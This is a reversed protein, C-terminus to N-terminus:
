ACFSRVPLADSRNVVPQSETYAQAHVSDHSVHWPVGTEGSRRSGGGGRGMFSSGTGFGKLSTSVTFATGRTFDPHHSLWAM